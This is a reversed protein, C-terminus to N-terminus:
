NGDWTIAAWEDHLLSAANPVNSWSWVGRMQHDYLEDLPLLRVTGGDEGSYGEVMKEIEARFATPVPLLNTENNFGRPCHYYVVDTECDLNSLM